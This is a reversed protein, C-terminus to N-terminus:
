FKLLALLQAEKQLVNKELESIKSRWQTQLKQDKLSGLNIRANMLAGLAASRALLVGVGADTIMDPNGSQLATGALDMVKLANEAVQLPVSTAQQFAEQIASSRKQKEAETSKSMQFAALVQRYSDADHDVATLLNKLLQEANDRLQAMAPARDAYQAKKLTLRAVMASLAAALGGALASVSGGGPVPAQSAVATTFAELSLDKLMLHGRPKTDKQNQQLVDPEKVLLRHGDM